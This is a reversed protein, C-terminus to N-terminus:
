CLFCSWGKLIVDPWVTIMAFVFGFLTTRTICSTFSTVYYNSICNINLDQKQCAQLGAICPEMCKGGLFRNRIVGLSPFNSSISSQVLAAQCNGHEQTPSMTFYYTCLTVKCQQCRKNNLTRCKDDVHLETQKPSEGRKRKKQGSKQGRKM